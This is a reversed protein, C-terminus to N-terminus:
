SQCVFHHLGVGLSKTQERVRATSLSRAEGKIDVLCRQVNAPWAQEWEEAVTNGVKAM